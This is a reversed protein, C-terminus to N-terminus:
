ANGRLKELEYKLQREKEWRSSVDRMISSFGIVRGNGDHHMIISFECSLQHGDKHLAPVALLGTDYKSKGSALVKKYGEWHRERMKVPIILDLSQGIAEDKSFGFIREAGDNWLRIVGDHDAFLIADPAEEVITRFLQDDTSNSM